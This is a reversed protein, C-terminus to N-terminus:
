KWFVNKSVASFSSVVNGPVGVRFVAHESACASVIRQVFHPTANTQPPRDRSPRSACSSPFRAHQNSGYPVQFLRVAFLRGISCLAHEVIDTINAFMSKHASTPAFPANHSNHFEFGQKSSQTSIAETCVQYLRAVFLRGISCPAHETICTINALM